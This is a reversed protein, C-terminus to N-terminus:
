GRQYIFFSFLFNILADLFLIRWSKPQKMAQKNNLFLLKRIFDKEEEQSEDSDADSDANGILNNHM